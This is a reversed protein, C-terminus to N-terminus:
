TSSGSALDRPRTMAPQRPQGGENRFSEVLQAYQRGGSKTLKLFM